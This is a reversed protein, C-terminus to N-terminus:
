ELYKKWLSLSQEALQSSFQTSIKAQYDSFTQVFSAYDKQLRRIQIYKKIRKGFIIWALLSLIFFSGVIGVLVPYNFLFQVVQYETNTKLPLQHVPLTDPPLVKAQRILDVTDPRAAFWLSDNALPIFVPISLWQKPDIEFTRFQYVVSDYSIGMNTRTPYYRRSIYEFPGFSFTSDPFLVTVSEPYRATLFYRVPEGIAISDKTFGGNVFVQQGVASHMTCILMLGVLRVWIKM